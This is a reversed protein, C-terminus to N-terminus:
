IRSVTGQLYKLWLRLDRIGAEVIRIIYNTIEEKLYVKFYHELNITHLYKTSLCDHLHELILVLKLPM